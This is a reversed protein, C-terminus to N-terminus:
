EFFRQRDVVDEDEHQNEGLQSYRRGLLPADEQPAHQAGEHQSGQQNAGTQEDEAAKM